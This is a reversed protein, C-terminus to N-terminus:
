GRCVYRVTGVNMRGTHAMQLLGDRADILRFQAEFHTLQPSWRPYGVWVPVFSTAVDARRAGLDIQQTTGPLLEGGGGARYAGYQLSLRKGAYGALRLELWVVNGIERQDLSSLPRRSGTKDAFEGHLIRAYAERVDMRADPPPPEDIGIGPIWTLALGGVTSVLAVIASVTELADRERTGRRTRALAVLLAFLGTGGALVLLLTGWAVGEDSGVISPLGLMSHVPLKAPDACKAAAEERKGSEPQLQASGVGSTIRRPQQAPPAPTTTTSVAAPIDGADPLSPTADRPQTVLTPSVDIPATTAPPSPAASAAPALVLVGAVVLGAATRM